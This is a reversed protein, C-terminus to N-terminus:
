KNMQYLTYLGKISLEPIFENIDDIENSVLLGLGGTSLVLPNDLHKKIEKIIEKIQGIYGFFVGAKIQEVTNRGMITTPKEFSVKPLKATNGFLSNISMNIGPLIGGGIYVGNKLIEYTTATGFDFVVLNKEPHIELAETIGIIRDAGFGDPNMEKSFSFPLKLDLGVIIPDISFYKKSLYKFITVLSPVVSSIIVGDVNKLEVNNFDAINKLYSFLEDETLNEKSSVRFNLLLNGNTDFVGTVIHTNGIDFAILM